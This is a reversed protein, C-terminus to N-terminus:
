GNDAGGQEINLMKDIANEVDLLARMYATRETQTYLPRDAMRLRTIERKLELTYNIPKIGYIGDLLSDYRSLPMDSYNNDAIVRLADGRRIPEALRAMEMKAYEMETM